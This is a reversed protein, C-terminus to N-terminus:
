PAIIGVPSIREGASCFKRSGRNDGSGAGYIQSRDSMLSEPKTGSIQPRSVANLRRCIRLLISHGNLFLLLAPEGQHFDRDHQDDDPEEDASHQLALFQDVVLLDLGGVVAIALVRRRHVTVLVAVPRQGAVIGICGRAAEDDLRAVRRNAVAVAVAQDGAAASKAIVRGGAWAGLDALGIVM